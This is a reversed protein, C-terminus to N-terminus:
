KLLMMKKTESFEGANLKYFYMGTAMDAANWTVQHYGAPQRNDVLTTVKQGLIDYIEITVQSSAALNYKITASANFPNPYSGVLAFERPIELSNEPGTIDTPDCNILLVKFADVGAEVVSGGFLDSVEFRVRVMDTPTIVENVSFTEVKWGDSSTPGITYAMEWTEGDDASLWIRFYDTYPNDGAYNTYWLAYSILADGDTLDFSPSILYTMGEDVDSNGYVNDTLYCQGSGDYDTPPDGREGGGVPVGRDWAGDTLAPTNEVIWGQDTEFDDEFVTYFNYACYLSYTTTPANSPNTATNGQDTEASFYYQVEIGCEIEPFEAEYVDPSTETMAIELWGEGINYHLMGTGPEPNETIPYVEVDIITGGEPSIFEPHGEPFDFGILHIEPCDMNHLAFGACIEPYHPTGNGIDNDDDDLTLYDITVDPTILDGTHLLMSNVVLNSLIDMYDDPYNEMLAERTDWVCGSILQGCEHIEGTCPYQHSNDGTRMYQNCNNFFGYALGPEETILIGMVDGMGEGYQGQGSGAMAVLHHGYEHHVVTSFATNSCGGGSTFFNISSYDYYANCNDNLNVNVPFANAQLGPYDPCYKLTFDRVVNAHVYGNVEAREYENDNPANHLIDFPGPPTILSDILANGGGQNYVRFWEGWLYSTVTVPTDGDNPIVYDGMSDAYVYNNGISVRSYPLPTVIEEDCFDAANGQTAMGSVNGEIDTFIIMDESYLIEGTRSDVLLLWKEYDMTAPKGNDAIIEMAVRPLDIVENNIGAWIVMEPETFNVLEPSFARAANQALSADSSFGPAAAFDGIDRLSSSALVLPYGPENRVLLKLESRFVPIESEYQTYYVLTFKYDGTERNYMVPQIHRSDVLNSHPRLEDSSIGYIDAYSLRFQEASSRPTDGHSFPSGYLRTIQQGEQYSLVGPYAATLSYYAANKSNEEALIGGPIILLFALLLMIGAGTKTLRM